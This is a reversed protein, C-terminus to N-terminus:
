WSRFPRISLNSNYYGADETVERGLWHPREFTEHEHTLEIEAVTLGENEALFEDVDWIKGGVEVRYRNKTICAAAYGDLLEEADAVPIPYEYEARVAGTSIGKITLYASDGAIRVRITKHPDTLLYGQRLFRGPPKEAAAWRQPDVLFKREIEQPM